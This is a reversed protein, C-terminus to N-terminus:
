CPYLSKGIFQLIHLQTNFVSNKNTKQLSNDQLYDPFSNSTKLVVIFKM